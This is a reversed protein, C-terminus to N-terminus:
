PIMSITEMTVWILPRQWVLGCFPIVLYCFNLPFEHAFSRPILLKELVCKSKQTVLISPHCIHPIIGLVLTDVRCNCVIARFCSLKMSVVSGTDARGCKVPVFIKAYTFNRVFKVAQSIKWFQLRPKKSSRKWDNAPPSM